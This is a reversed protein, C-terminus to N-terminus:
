PYIYVPAGIPFTDALQQIVDNPLRICGNSVDTGLKDPANTGHIAVVPVGTDFEDIMESYGNTALAVPGYAGAPNKQPVIDTIYFLGTPTHTFPAGAVVPSEALLQEGEYARLMNETLNIEIRKTTTSVDIDSLKVFGHTQNPRLPLLVKAWDGRIENILMTFPQPPDYPGPNDFEWGGDVARRKVIPSEPEPLAERVPLADQSSPPLPAATTPPVTVEATAWEPPEAAQVHLVTVSAKATAIQSTGAPQPEVYTTTTQRETTTTAPTPESEDRTLAFVLAGLLAAIVVIGIAVFAIRRRDPAAAAAAADGGDAPPLDGDVPPGAPPGTVEHADGDAPTDGGSTEDDHM